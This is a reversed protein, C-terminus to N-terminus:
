AQEPTALRLAPRRAPLLRRSPAPEGGVLVERIAYAPKQQSNQRTLMEAVLGSSVLQVGVLMLLVGLILLPRQGIGEGMFWLVTLYSLVGFGLAGLFAGAGGFLHLPRASFRTLLVVTLLDLFGKLLREMGYKSAGFRRAHHQVPIESVRFGQWHVLVPIYRHLEGYISVSLAAERRYAKFGCNFDHLSVGGVASLTKNFLKSPLTKSIPDHRVRKWGSVLDYGEDLKQLFNGIEAPDDQLDADMTFLIDGRARQFGADLGAAKGFNRRFHVVNVRPDEAHLEDLLEASGDKSGDNVFVYEFDEIGLRQMEAAIRDHLERLSERENYLPVVFSVLPKRAEQASSTGEDQPRKPLQSAVM